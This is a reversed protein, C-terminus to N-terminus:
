PVLFLLFFIHPFVLCFFFSREMKTKMRLLLLVSRDLDGDRIM